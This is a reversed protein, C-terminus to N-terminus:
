TAGGDLTLNYIVKYRYLYSERLLQAEPLLRDWIIGM